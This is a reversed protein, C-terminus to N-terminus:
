LAAVQRAAVTRLAAAIPRLQVGMADRSDNEYRLLLSLVYCLLLMPGQERPVGMGAALSGASRRVQSVASEVDAVGRLRSQFAYHYADLGVPVGSEYREWDWLLVRQSDWAMNWKTWDGHWAGFTVPVRGWHTTAIAHVALLSDRARVDDIDAIRQPLGQWFPSDALPMVETGANTALARMADLQPETPDRRVHTTGILPAIALLSLDEWTAVHLVRPPQVVGLRTPVLSALTQAEDNVLRHTLDNWGVKVFAVVEGAPTLIQLVPKRNARMPGVALAVLVDAGFVGRLYTEISAPQPDSADPACVYVRDRMLHRGLGIRLALSAARRGAQQIGRSGESPRLVARAAARSSAVPILLSPARRHPAVIFESVVTGAPPRADQRGLAVTLPPRWLLRSVPLVSGDGDRPVAAPRAPTLRSLSSAVATM